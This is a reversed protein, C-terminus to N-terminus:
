IVINLIKEISLIINEAYRNEQTNIKKMGMSKNMGMSYSLKLPIM